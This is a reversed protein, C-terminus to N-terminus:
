PLPILSSYSKEDPSRTLYDWKETLIETFSKTTDPVYDAGRPMPKRFNASVFEGLSFGPEDKKEMYETVIEAAPRLPDSDVFTKSDSFIQAMQVDHFLMGLDENPSYSANVDVNSPQDSPQCAFLLALFLLQTYKWISRQM